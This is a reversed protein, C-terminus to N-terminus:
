LLRIGHPVDDAPKVRWAHIEVWFGHEQQIINENMELLTEIGPDAQM